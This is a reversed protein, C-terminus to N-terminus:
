PLDQTAAGLKQQAGAFHRHLMKPDLQLHALGPNNAWNPYIVITCSYLFWLENLLNSVLTSYLPQGYNFDPM